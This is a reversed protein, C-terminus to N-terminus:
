FKILKRTFGIRSVTIIRTILFTLSAYSHFLIYGDVHMFSISIFKAHYIYKIYLQQHKSLEQIIIPKYKSNILKVSSATLKM